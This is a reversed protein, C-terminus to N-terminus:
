DGPTSAEAPAEAASARAGPLAWAGHTLRRAATERTERIARGERAAALGRDVSRAVGTLARADADRLSRHAADLEHHARAIDGSRLAAAAFVERVRPDVDEADGTWPALLRAAREGDAPTAGERTALMWALTTAVDPRAPALRAAHEAVAVAEDWEGRGWHARALMAIVVPHEQLALSRQLSALAADVAGHGLAVEGLVAHLEANRPELQLARSLWAGAERLRGQAVLRRAVERLLPVSASRQAAAELRQTGLADDGRAFAVRALAWHTTYDDAELELARHLAREAEDLRGLELLAVGANHHAEQFGPELEAARQYHALAEANRGQRALALGYNTPPRPHNPAKAMADRWLREPSEWARNRVITASSTAVLVGLALAGAVWARRGSSGAEGAFPAFPGAGVARWVGYPGWACVGVLPLYTRHEYLPELPLVTGEVLQQVWWWVGLAGLAAYRGSGGRWGRVAAVLVAAWGCWALATWARTWIGGWLEVDHVVSLRGPSPWLVLGVYTWWVRGEGWLREWLTFPKRAYGGLPDGDTYTWLLVGGLAVVGLLAPLSRRAFARSAEGSRAGQWEWLWVVLPWTAGIEKAGLSLLWSAVALARLPGSSKASGAIWLWLAAAYFLTSLSTMRQVVYTVSQTALPHSVFLAGAFVAFVLRHRRSSADDAATGRRREFVGTVLWSLAMVWWATVVHIAVNWSRYSEASYGSSWYNLAFSLNSVPRPTPQFLSLESLGRWSLEGLRIGPNLTINNEDDFTFPAELAGAYVAWGLVAVALAATAVVARERSSDSM